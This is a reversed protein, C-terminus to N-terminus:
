PRPIGVTDPSITALGADYYIWAVQQYFERARQQAEEGSVPAFVAGQEDAWRQIAVNGNAIVRNWAATVTNIVEQPVGRPIFLGFYKIGIKLDPVYQTISPIVGFGELNLDNPAIVALPRIRGGRIMAAQEVSLQTTVQAEGAVVATVAPNGGDYTVLRYDIGTHKRILEIYSTGASVQGATAVTIQGPNARFAALLEPFTQWPSDVNVGVVGVMGASLFIEWDTINTDLLGNVRYLALDDAAGAAWTYGDRAATLVNNTGTSGSAGPQNQIVIRQGLEKELEAATVRTIQDTSGGAGWPVVITIPRTPWAREEGGRAFLNGTTLLFVALLALVVKETKKM